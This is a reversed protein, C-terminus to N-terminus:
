PVEHRPPVKEPYATKDLRRCQSALAAEHSILGVHDRDANRAIGPLSILDPLQAAYRGDAISSSIASVPTFYRM